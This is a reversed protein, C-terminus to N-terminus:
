QVGDFRFVPDDDGTQPVLAQTSQALPRGWASAQNSLPIAPTDEIPQDMPILLDVANQVIWGHLGRNRIRNGDGFDEDHPLDDAAASRSELELHGSVSGLMSYEIGSDIEELAVIDFCDFLYEEGNSVEDDNYYTLVVRTEVAASAPATGDLTFLILEAKVDDDRPALFNVALRNPFSTYEDNDFRYTEDDNVGIGAQFSIAPFSYAQGEVTDVVIADGFISDRNQPIGQLDAVAIFLIGNDLGLPVEKPDGDTDDRLVGEPDISSCEAYLKADSGSRQFVFTTTERATLDCTIREPSWGGGVDGSIAYLILQIAESAGNTVTVLTVADGAGPIVVDGSTTQVSIPNGPQGGTIIPLALAAGVEDVDLNADAQVQGSALAAALVAIATVGRQVKSHRM